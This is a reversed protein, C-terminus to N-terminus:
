NQMITVPFSMVGVQTDIFVTGVLKYNIKGKSKMDNVLSMGVISYPIFVAASVTMTKKPQISVPEFLGKITKTDEIYFDLDMKDINVEISNPNTIAIYLGLTLGTLSFKRIEVRSLEFKCNKVALRQELFTCGASQLMIIIGACCILTRMGVRGTGRFRIHEM